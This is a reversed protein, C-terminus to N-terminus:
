WGAAFVLPHLLCFPNKRKLAAIVGGTMKVKGVKIVEPAFVPDWVNESLWGAAGGLEAPREVATLVPLGNMSEFSQISAEDLIAVTEKTLTFEEPSANTSTEQSQSEILPPPNTNASTKLEVAPVAFLALPPIPEEAHSAAPVCLLLAFLICRANM